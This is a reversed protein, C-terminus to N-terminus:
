HAPRVARFGNDKIRVSPGSSNRRASRLYSAPTIWSGGRVVRSYGSSPGEPDNQETTAYTGYWDNIWESANGAMDYLGFPNAPKTAVPRTIAISNGLYWAHENVTDTGASDGWYYATTTGGRAAREWQAETPLRYGSRSLDFEIGELASVGDGYAGTMSAYTYVTDLGDRKSRANCYLVADFWTVEEVPCSTGCRVYYSPNVGMLAQYQGQTVLTSDMWFASVNVSHQTESGLRNAETAPSGMVFTGAPVLKMGERTVVPEPPQAGDQICRVSLGSGKTTLGNILDAKEDELIRGSGSTEDSEGVSWWWGREGLRDYAFESYGHGGPLGRFGYSDTGNGSDSWGVFSKLGSGATSGGAATELEDWDAIDPIRWGEPCIGRHRAQIRRGCIKKNCSDPLVLASAWAYLRGYRAGLDPNDNYWWSKDVDFDLNEAMWVQNGIKVTRYTRGDRSDAIYGYVIAPNFTSDLVRVIGTRSASITDRLLVKGGMSFTLTDAVGQTRGAVDNGDAHFNRVCKGRGAPDRGAISVRLRGNQVVVTRRVEARLADGPAIRTSTAQIRWEGMADTTAGANGGVLRVRVGAIPKSDVGLVSGSLEMAGVLTPLASLSAFVLLRLLNM